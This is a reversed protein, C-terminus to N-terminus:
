IKKSSRAVTGSDEDDLDDPILTEGCNDCKAALKSHLHQCSHCEFGSPPSHPAKPISGPKRTDCMECNPLLALNEFSCIECAWKDTSKLRSIESPESHM